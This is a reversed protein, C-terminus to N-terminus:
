PKESEKVIKDIRSKVYRKDTTPGLKVYKSAVKRDTVVFFWNKGYNKNLSNVKKM